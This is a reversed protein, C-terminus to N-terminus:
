EKVRTKKTVAGGESETTTAKEDIATITVKATIGKFPGDSPTISLEGKKLEWKGKYSVPKGSNTDVRDFTGDKHFTEKTHFTMGVIKDSSEWTGLMLKIIEEDKLKVPVPKDDAFSLGAGWAVCALVLCLRTM